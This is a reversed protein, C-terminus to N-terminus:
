LTELGFWIVWLRCVHRIAQALASYFLQTVDLTWLTHCDALNEFCCFLIYEIKNRNHKSGKNDCPWVVGGVIQKPVVHKVPEHIYVLLPKFYADNWPILYALAGIPIDSQGNFILWSFGTKWAAKNNIKLKM